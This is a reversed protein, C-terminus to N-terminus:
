AMYLEIRSQQVNRFMLDYIYILIHSNSMSEQCHFDTLSRFLCSFKAEYKRVEYRGSTSYLSVNNINASFVDCEVAMITSPLLPSVLEMSFVSIILFHLSTILLQMNKPIDIYYVYDM